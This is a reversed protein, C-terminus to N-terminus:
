VSFLETVPSFIHPLNNLYFPPDLPHFDCKQVTQKENPPHILKTIIHPHIKQARIKNYIKLIPPFFIYSIIFNNNSCLLVLIPSPNQYIIYTCKERLRVLDVEGTENRESYIM